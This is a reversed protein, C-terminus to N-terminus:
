RSITVQRLEAIWRAYGAPTLHTGDSFDSPQFRTALFTCDSREACVKRAAANVLANDGWATAPVANWVLPKAIGASLSRLRGEIGATQHLVIDNTGITLVVLRARPIAGYDPLAALLGASTQGGIGYNVALPTVAATALGQTLSDGLFIVAGDPQSADAMRQFTRMMAIHDSHPIPPSPWAQWAGLGIVAALALELKSAMVSRSPLAASVRCTPQSIEDKILLIVLSSIWKNQVPRTKKVM